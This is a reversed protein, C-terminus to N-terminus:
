HWGFSLPTFFTGVLINEDMIQGKIDTKNQRMSNPLIIDFNLMNTKQAYKEIVKYFDSNNFPKKIVDNINDIKQIIDREDNNIGYSVNIILVTIFSCLYTKM